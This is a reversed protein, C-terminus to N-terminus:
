ACRAVQADEGRRQAAAACRRNGEALACAADCAGGQAAQQAGGRHRHRHRGECGGGGAVGCSDRMGQGLPRSDMALQPSATAM